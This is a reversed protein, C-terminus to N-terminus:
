SGVKATDFGVQMMKDPKCLPKPVWLINGRKAIIQLLIKTAVSQLNKKRMTAETAVQTVIELEALATIKLQKYQTKLSIPLIILCINHQKAVAERM